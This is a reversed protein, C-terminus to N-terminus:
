VGIGFYYVDFTGNALGPNFSINFSTGALSVPTINIDKNKSVYNAGILEIYQLTTGPTLTVLQGNTPAKILGGYFIFPGAVFTYQTPYYVNPNTSQLGSQISPYSLQIPTQASSPAFFLEPVSSVLKTYLAAQTASTVPAPLSQSDITQFNFLNHMGGITSDQTLGVHNEAFSRNIAQFNANLQYYSQLTPDSVTPINPNYSM